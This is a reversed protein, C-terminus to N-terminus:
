VRVAVVGRMATRRLQIGIMAHRDFVLALALDRAYPQSMM